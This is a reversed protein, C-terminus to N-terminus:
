MRFVLFSAITRRKIMKRTEDEEEEEEKNSSNYFPSDSCTALHTQAHHMTFRLM